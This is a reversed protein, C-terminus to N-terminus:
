VRIKEIPVACKTKFHEVVEHELVNSIFITKSKEDGFKKNVDGPNNFRKSLMNIIYQVNSFKPNQTQLLDNVKKM